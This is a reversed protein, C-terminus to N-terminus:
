QKEPFNLRAFDGFYKKAGDDYAKAAEIINDFRGLFIKKGNYRITVHYRKNVIDWCVGKYGTKNNKRLKTNRMNESHSALRLNCRRNDLTVGNIHDVTKGNRPYLIWYHM